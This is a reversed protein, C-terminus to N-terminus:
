LEVFWNVGLVRASPEVSGLLISQWMILRSRAECRAHEYDECFFSSVGPGRPMV